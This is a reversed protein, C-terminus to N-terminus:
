KCEGNECTEPIQMEKMAERLADSFKNPEKVNQFGFEVPPNTTRPGPIINGFRIKQTPVGASVLADRIARGHARSITDIKLLGWEMDDATLTQVLDILFSQTETTLLTNGPDDYFFILNDMLVKVLDRTIKIKFERKRYEVIRKEKSETTTEKITLIEPQTFPLGVQIGVMTYLGLWDVDNATLMVRGVFRTNLDKDFIQYGGQAGFIVGLKKQQTESDYGLDSPYRFQIVPSAFINKRIRYGPAIELITGSLKISTEAGISGASIPDGNDNTILVGDETRLFQERTELGTVNYFGWGFGADIIFKDLLVSGLAKGEIALGYKAGFGKLKTAPFTSLLGLDASFILSTGYEEIKTKPREVIVRRVTKTETKTDSKNEPKAEPSVAPSAAGQNEPSGSSSDAASEPKPAPSPTDATPPADDRAPAATEPKANETPAPATAPTTPPTLLDQAIAPQTSALISVACIKLVKEKTKIKM